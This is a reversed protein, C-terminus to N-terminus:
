KQNEISQHIILNGREELCAPEQKNSHSGDIVNFLCGYGVRWRKNENTLLSATKHNLRNIIGIHQRGEHNFGVCDGIKFHNKTPREKHATRISSEKGSVNIMYYPVNWTKGDHLNELVANKVNKELVTAEILANARRSFYFVNDGVAFSHRIDEIRFPNEMENQIAVKLRYLEYTSANKLTQLVETFDM